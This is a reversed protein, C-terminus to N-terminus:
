TKTRDDENRNKNLGVDLALLGFSVSFWTLFAEKAEIKFVLVGFLM